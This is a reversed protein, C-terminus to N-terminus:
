GATSNAVPCRRQRCRGKAGRLEPQCVAPKVPASPVKPMPCCTLKSQPLLHPDFWQVDAEQKQRGEQTLRWAMRSKRGWVSSPTTRGLGSSGLAGERVM